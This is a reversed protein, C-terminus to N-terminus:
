SFSSGWACFPKLHDYQIRKKSKCRRGSVPDVFTCAGEDRLYVERRIAVPIFRSRKVEVQAKALAPDKAMVSKKVLKGKLAAKGNVMAILHVRCKRRRLNPLLTKLHFISFPYMQCNLRVLLEKIQVHM